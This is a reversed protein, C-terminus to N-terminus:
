KAEHTEIAIKLIKLAKTMQNEITKPSIELKEAIEKHSLGEVRRMIFILRCREPLSDLAHQIVEQLENAQIKELASVENSEKFGLAEDGTLRQQYKILNLSRNIVSRKLYAEVSSSINLQERKQWIQFFVEQVIDKATNVDKIFNIAVALLLQYYKDFLARFASKNDRKIADILDNDAHNEEAM